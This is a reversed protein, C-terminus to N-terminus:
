STGSYRYNKYSVRFLISYLIPVVGLTLVTAFMLGFLITVAMSEFLPGGGLWLPILGGITTMTTLLIPRMRRQAAEIVADQPERGRQFRELRIRDILVIANNIVIGSLSVIGLLSMFGFPQGTVLLGIVVGIIGLPITMIIILPRRISDFQGVLLLIIILGAIPLKDMIAQNGEVSSEMEGGLEYRYGVPWNRSEEALWEDLQHSLAIPSAGQVVAAQVTVTKLRDRRIIRSPEFAVEIDAVQKLPVSQGTSQVYINFSELKGIDQREAGISRLVVPIVEDEERYVTTEIGSLITQLSMAIDQSSLGARLARPQNILVYLKKTRPGWDDIVNRAGPMEAVKEKVRDVYAYIQDIDRGTIRIEIPNAVPPGMFLPAVTASLDPFRSRCFDELQGVWQSDILSRSTTTILMYSYHTSPPEPNYSLQFRPAGEGLFSAWKIVGQRAVNGEEDWQAMLEAQLFSEVEAIMRETKELPTGLPFELEAFMIPKDNSPIFIQPIFAFLQIVGYFIAFTLLIALYRFRLSLILLSRYIRYFFGGYTAAKADSKGKPKFFLFCFLPTMTLALFWSCLLTITVVKFIPSTYEGVAKEALFIPLFAAATTLSSTLLPVRLEAASDIAAEFRSKGENIQVMISESMVIANDVLLGLAIILAALSMQDLGIDLSGMVLLAMIMAMPILSAVVLGTRFGLSFLMVLIVIGVAQMLNNVFDEVKNNVYTPQFYIVEFDIGIPYNRQFRQLQREVEIGLTTINGGERLSVALGISPQGNARMKTTPPDIYSRYISAVDELYVLDGRGPLNIVTRRLEEVSEFNGSPELAIREDRTYVEGGSYIINRSVLIQQLQSPSLGLESLRANNYEVFVREEQEGNIEVKAVDSILLLEDRCQDAIEKLEAYTFDAGTLAVLIGFVDGFEDNVFPGNIGEPLDPTVDEVKRRLDDWIPRMNKYRELINVLIVSVGTKSESYIYDIEPIEQIKKELKDTVLLEIREPSAGPFYTLIQATRVIFGPDEARSMSQYQLLGSVLIIVLVTFTIRKKELAFRTLNPM